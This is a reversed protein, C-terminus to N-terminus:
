GGAVAPETPLECLEPWIDRWDDRLEQRTVSRESEAEIRVCLAPSPLRGGQRAALQSLYVPKVGVRQAFQAVGGHPLQSTFTRLDVQNHVRRLQHRLM